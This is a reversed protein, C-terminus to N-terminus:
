KVKCLTILAAAITNLPLIQKAAGLLIAEKPMGFMLCSKEDQAITYAGKQKMLLLEAAGDRGMGTLMVGVSQPGYTEALSKFLHGVSPQLSGTSTYDLSIINGPRIGMQCADAAIYVHGPEAKAGDVASCIQLKSREQLWRIFEGSFGLAIHQVIFVPVPFSAPLEELIKAIAIPGGLSAGIGVAKIELKAEIKPAIKKLDGAPQKPRRTVLKISSIMKLTSIIEEAKHAYNVDGLGAPKELIGLAGAEMARFALYNDTPTYGSSIIVTPLPKTEMIKKTVEFGNIDPMHIDMTIVDCSQKELWQLAEEGNGVTGAVQLGPDSSIIHALLMSATSSDDVILVRIIKNEM